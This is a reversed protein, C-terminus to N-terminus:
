TKERGSMQIFGDSVMFYKFYEQVGQEGQISPPLLNWCNSPNESTQGVSLSFRTNLLEFDNGPWKGNDGVCLIDCQSPIEKRLVGYLNMKSVFSPMIDTSHSSEVIRIKKLISKDVSEILSILHKARTYGSESELTLQNPRITIKVNPALLNKQKIMNLVSQLEDNIRADTVPHDTDCLTAIDAGNYYGIKIKSWYKEKIADTLTKRVSKGRGTAIGILVDNKLLKEILNITKKSPLEINNKRDYLTGDYDFIVAKFKKSHMIRIFNRLGTIQSKTPNSHGFKRRLALQEEPTTKITTNKPISLHYIKRGFSAVHPRGPDIKRFVGFYKVLSLIRLFLDLSGVPGDFATSIVVTPVHNPILALTRSALLRCAPNVLAVLGTNNKHKDLWNHRGHAFNRYDALQVGVLGSEVLKSEADIAATKSWTDYLITLTNCNKLTEFKNHLIGLEDQDFFSIFDFYRKPLFYPLSFINVYSRILWIMTAFLSNTALFGDKGSPLKLAHMFIEPFKSAKKTLKNNTSACLIGINKPMIRTAKDFVSLIDKNNGGATVILISFNKNINQSQLFELPTMHLAIRGTEHHLISAFVAASFSGGSGIVYMSTNASRSLFESMTSVDSDMAWDYVRGLKELEQAFPKGM